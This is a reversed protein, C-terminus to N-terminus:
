SWDYRLKFWPLAHKPLKAHETKTLFLVMPFITYRAEYSDINRDVFRTWWIFFKGADKVTCGVPAVISFGAYQARPKEKEPRQFPWM